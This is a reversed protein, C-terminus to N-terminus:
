VTENEKFRPEDSFEYYSGVFRGEKRVHVRRMYGVIAQQIQYKSDSFYQTIDYTQGVWNVPRLLLYYLVGKARASLKVDMSPNHSVSTIDTRDGPFRRHQAEM